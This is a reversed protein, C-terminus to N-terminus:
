GIDPLPYLPPRRVGCAKRWKGERRIILSSRIDSKGM